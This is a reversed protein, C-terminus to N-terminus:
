QAAVDPQSGPQLAPLQLAAAREALYARLRALKELEPGRELLWELEPKALRVLTKGLEGEVYLDKSFGSMVRGHTMRASAGTEAQGPHAAALSQILERTHTLSFGRPLGPPYYPFTTLREVTLDHGARDLEVYLDRGPLYLDVAAKKPTQRQPDWGLHLALSAVAAFYRPLETEQPPFSLALPEDFRGEEGLATAIYQLIRRKEVSLPAM